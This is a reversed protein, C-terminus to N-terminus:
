ADNDKDAVLRDHWTPEEPTPPQDKALIERSRANLKHLTSWDIPEHRPTGTLPTIGLHETEALLEAIRRNRDVPNPYLYEIGAMLQRRRETADTSLPENHGPATMAIFRRIREQIQAATPNDEPNPNHYTGPAVPLLDAQAREILPILAAQAQEIAPIPDLDEVDASAIHQNVIRLVQGSQRSIEYIVTTLEHSAQHHLNVLYLLDHTDKELLAIKKEHENLKETYKTRLYWVSLLMILSGVLTTIIQPLTPSM